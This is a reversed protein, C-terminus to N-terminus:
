TSVDLSLECLEVDAGVVAELGSAAPDSYQAPLYSKGAPNAMTPVVEWCDVRVTYRGPMLGDKPEFTRASFNGEVDFEATGPIRPYGEVGEVPMFFLTGAAPWKGENLTVKGTVPTPVPRGPGCGSCLPLLALVIWSFRAVPQCRSM